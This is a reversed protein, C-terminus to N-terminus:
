KKKTEVPGIYRDAPLLTRCYKCDIRYVIRFMPVSVFTEVLRWDHLGKECAREREIKALRKGYGFM